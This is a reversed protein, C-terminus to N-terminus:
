ANRKSYEAHTGAWTVVVVGTKYAVTTEVRYKTGKLNFIVRNDELFSATSYRAKIDAPGTWRAARVEAIWAAVAPRVDAHEAALDDIKPRGAIDVNVM